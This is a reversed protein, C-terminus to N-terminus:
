SRSSIFLQVAKVTETLGAIFEGLNPDPLYKPMAVTEKSSRAVITLSGDPLPRQLMLENQPGGNM